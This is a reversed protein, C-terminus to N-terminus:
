SRAEQLGDHRREIRPHLEDERMFERLSHGVM